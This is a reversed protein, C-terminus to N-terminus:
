RKSGDGGKLEEQELLLYTGYANGRNAAEFAPLDKFRSWDTRAYADDFPELERVARGMAERLYRLYERTLAFDRQPDRSAPGHGPIVVKPSPELAYMKDIAALWGKSDANGVFPLRGAVVLDGAFLVREDVVYMLLDEPSHAGGSYLLRFRLGGFRFDTDGDIWVDPPVVRTDDDVWPSLDARRQM